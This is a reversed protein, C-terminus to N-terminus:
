DKRDSKNLNLELHLKFKQLEYSSSYIRYFQLNLEM